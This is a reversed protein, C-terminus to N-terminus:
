CVIMYWDSVCQLLKHNDDYVAINLTQTPYDITISQEFNVPPEYYSIAPTVVQIPIVFSYGNGNLNMTSAYNNISINFSRTQSVNVMQTGTHFSTEATDQQPYGLLMNASNATNTGFTFAFLSASSATTLYLTVPDRTITFTSAGGYGVLTMAVGVAAMFPLPSYYGPPIVAVHEGVFDKFYVLNNTSNVNFFTVPIFIGKLTYRGSFVTNSARITFQSPSTTTPNIRQASDIKLYSM